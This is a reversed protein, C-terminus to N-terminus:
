QPHISERNRAYESVRTITKFESNNGKLINQSFTDWLISKETQNDILNLIQSGMGQPLLSYQLQSHVTVWIHLCILIDNTGCLISFREEIGMMYHVPAGNSHPLFCLITRHRVERLRQITRHQAAFFHLYHPAQATFHLLFHPTTRYFFNFQAICHPTKISFNSVNQLYKFM